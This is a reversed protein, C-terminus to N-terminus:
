RRFSDLAPRNTSNDSSKSTAGTVIEIARARQESVPLKGFSYDNKSMLNIQSTIRKEFDGSKIGTDRKSGDSMISIVSGKDDVVTKSVRLSGGGGAGGIPKNARINDTNNQSTVRKDLIDLRREGQDIKTEEYRDKNEDRIEKLLSDKNKQFAEIVSSHAGISMAADIKDQAAQKAQQNATLTKSEILGNKRYIEAYQPNEQMLQKIEDQSMAPADGKIKATDNAIKGADTTLQKDVRSAAIEDAKTNAAQIESIMRQKLTESRKDEMDLKRQFSKEEEQQKWELEAARGMASGYAAGADSIGKGIGAWILGSGM